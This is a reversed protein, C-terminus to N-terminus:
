GASARCRRGARRVGDARGLRLRHRPLAAARSFRKFFPHHDRAGRRGGSDPDDVRRAAAGARIRGADAGRVPRAGRVALRTAGGARERTRRVHLDFTAIPSTTSRAAPRARRSRASCSCGLVKRTPFATAPSGCRGCCRGCCCCRASGATCGADAARVRHPRRRGSALRAALRDQAIVPTVVDVAEARSLGSRCTLAVDAGPAPVVDTMRGADSRRCSNRCRRRCATSRPSCRRRGVFRSRRLAVARRRARRGGHDDYPKAYDFESGSDRRSGLARMAEGLTTTGPHAGATRRVTARPVTTRASCGSWKAVACRSRASTAPLATPPRSRTM